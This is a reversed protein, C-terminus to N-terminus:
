AVTEESSVLITLPLPYQGISGDRWDEQGRSPIPTHGWTQLNAESMQDDLDSSKTAMSAVTTATSQFKLDTQVNQTCLGKCSIFFWQTQALQMKEM